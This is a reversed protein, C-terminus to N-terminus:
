PQLLAPLLESPTQPSSRRDAPPAAKAISYTPAASLKRPVTLAATEPCPASTCRSSGKCGGREAQVHTRRPPLFRGPPFCAETVLAGGQLSSPQTPGRAAGRSHAATPLKEKDLRRSKNRLAHTRHLLQGLGRLWRRAERTRRVQRELRAPVHHRRSSHTPALPLCADASSHTDM